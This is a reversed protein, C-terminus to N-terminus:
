GKTKKGRRNEDVEVHCVPCLTIGNSVELRLEPYKSYSKIHHVELQNGTALCVQCQFGDRLICKMRWLKYQKSMMIRSREKQKFELFVPEKTKALSMKIRTSISKPKGSQVSSSACSKSCFVQNLDRMLLFKNHCNPCIKSKRIGANWPVIGKKFQGSNKM